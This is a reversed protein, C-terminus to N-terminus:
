GMNQARADVCRPLSSLLSDIIGVCNSMPATLVSLLQARMQDKGPLKALVNVDEKSLKQNDVFGGLLTYFDGEQKNFKLVVQTAAIPDQAGVIIGVHGPLQEANFEIGMDKLARLLMRKRVVEFFGGAKEIERRFQYAQNATMKEYNAIIFSDSQQIQEQMEALFLEKERKV